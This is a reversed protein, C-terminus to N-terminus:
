GWKKSENDVWEVIEDRTKDKFFTNFFDDSHNISNKMYTFQRHAEELLYLERVPSFNYVENLTNLLDDLLKIAQSKTKIKQSSM